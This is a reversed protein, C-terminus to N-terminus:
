VNILSDWNCEPCYPYKSSIRSTARCRPCTHLRSNLNPQALAKDWPHEPILSYDDSDELDLSCIDEITNKYKYKTKSTFRNRIPMVEELTLHSNTGTNSTGLALAHWFRILTNFQHQFKVFDKNENLLTSKLRIPPMIAQFSKEIM